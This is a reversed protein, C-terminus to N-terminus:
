KEVSPTTHGTPNRRRGWRERIFLGRGRPAKEKAPSKGGSRSAVFPVEPTESGHADDAKEESEQQRGEPARAWVANGPKKAKTNSASPLSPRGTGITRLTASRVVAQGTSREHAPPTVVAM